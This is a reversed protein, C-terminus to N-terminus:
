GTRHTICTVLSAAKAGQVRVVTPCSPEKANPAPQQVAIDDAGAGAGNM